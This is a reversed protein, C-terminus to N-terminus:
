AGREASVSVGCAAEDEETAERVYEYGVRDCMCPTDDREAYEFLRALEERSSNACVSSENRYFEIDDPAWCEPVTVVYEITARIVVTRQRAVCTATHQGGVKVRCYFCEDPSGAPRADTPLVTWDKRKM